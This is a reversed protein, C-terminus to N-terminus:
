AQAICILLLENIPGDIHSGIETEINKLVSKLQDIHKLKM